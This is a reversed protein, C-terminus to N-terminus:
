DTQRANSQGQMQDIIENIDVKTQNQLLAYGAVLLENFEDSMQDICKAYGRIYAWIFADHSIGEFRTNKCWLEEAAKRLEEESLPKM